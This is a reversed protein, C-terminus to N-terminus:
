PINVERAESYIIVMIKIKLLWCCNLGTIIISFHPKKKYNNNNIIKKIVKGFWQRSKIKEEILVTKM